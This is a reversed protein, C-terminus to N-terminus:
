ERQSQSDMQYVFLPGGVSSESFSCSPRSIAEPFGGADGEGGRVEGKTTTTSYDSHKQHLAQPPQPNPRNASSPSGLTKWGREDQHRTM